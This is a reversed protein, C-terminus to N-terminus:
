FSGQSDFVSVGATEIPPPTPEKHSFSLALSAFDHQRPPTGFFFSSHFTVNMNKLKALAGMIINLFFFLRQDRERVMPALWFFIGMQAGFYLSYELWSNSHTKTPPPAPLPPPFLTTRDQLKFNRQHEYTGHNFCRFLKRGNQEPYETYIYNYIDHKFSAGYVDNWSLMKKELFFFSYYYYYYYIKEKEKHLTLRTLALHMVFGKGDDPLKSVGVWGEGRPPPIIQPNYLFPNSTSTCPLFKFPPKKKTVYVPPTSWFFFFSPSPLSFHHVVSSIPIM